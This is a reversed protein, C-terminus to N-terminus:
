VKTIEHLKEFGSLTNKRVRESVNKKKMKKKNQSKPRHESLMFNTQFSMTLPNSTDITMELM